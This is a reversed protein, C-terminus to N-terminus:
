PMRSRGARAFPAALALAGGEYLARIASAGDAGAEACAAVNTRTVGGLAYVLVPPTQRAADVIARAAAVAAVGRPAGKGPTAFVPSVLVATVRAVIAHRVDDDDHATTTVFADPGLHARADAARAVTGRGENSFHVGDAGAERAIAPSGNIVLLAGAERTPGRLARASALLSAESAQKDRLQVVLRAPGLAESAERIVAVTRALEHRPDTILVVVPATM